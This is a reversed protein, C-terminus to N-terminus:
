WKRTWETLVIQGLTLVVRLLGRTKFDDLLSKVVGMAVIGESRSVETYEFTLNPTRFTRLMTACLFFAFQVDDPALFPVLGYMGINSLESPVM